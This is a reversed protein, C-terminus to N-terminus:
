AGTLWGSPWMICTDLSNECLRPLGPFDLAVGCGVVSCCSCTWSASVRARRANCPTDRTPMRPKMTRPIKPLTNRFTNRSGRKLRRLSAKRPMPRSTTTSDTAVQEAPTFRALRVASYPSGTGAVAAAAWRKASRVATASCLAGALRRKCIVTESVLAVEASLRPRSVGSSMRAICLM